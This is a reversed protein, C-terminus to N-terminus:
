IWLFIYDEVFCTKALCFLLLTHLIEGYVTYFRQKGDLNIRCLQSYFIQPSQLFAHDWQFVLWTKWCFTSRFAKALKLSDSACCGFVNWVNLVNLFSLVRLAEVYELNNQHHFFCNKKQTVQWIIGCIQTFKGWFHNECSKTRKSTHFWM